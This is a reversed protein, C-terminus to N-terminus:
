DLKVPELKPVLLHIVLLATLYAFAAIFFVPMYSGTAELIYGTIKAILMGGVAGAFGGIGVVSGVAQRPFMDSTLTFLNASWGQHAAAALSVLGVAVWLDSAGSAFVMPLVALACVLM